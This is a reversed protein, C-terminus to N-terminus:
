HLCGGQLAFPGTAGDISGVGWGGGGVGLEVGVGGRWGLGGTGGGGGGASDTALQREAPAPPLPDLTEIRSSMTPPSLDRAFPASRCSFGKGEGPIGATSGLRWIGSTSLRFWLFTISFVQLSAVQGDLMAQRAFVGLRSKEQFPNRLSGRKNLPKLRLPFLGYPAAFGILRAQCALRFPCIFYLLCNLCLRRELSSHYLWTQPSKYFCAM